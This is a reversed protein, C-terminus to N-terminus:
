PDVKILLYSSRQAGNGDTTIVTLIKVGVKNFPATGANATYSSTSSLPTSINDCYWNIASFDGANALTVTVSKPQKGYYIITTDGKNVPEGNILLQPEGEEIPNLGVTIIVGPEENNEINDKDIIDQVKENDLFLQINIVPVCACLLLTISISMITCWVTKVHFCGM